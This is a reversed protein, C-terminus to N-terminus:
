LQGQNTRDRGRAGKAADDVQWTGQEDGNKSKVECIDLGSSVGFM